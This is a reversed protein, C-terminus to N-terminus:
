VARSSLSCVRRVRGLQEDERAVEIRAVQDAVLKHGSSRRRYGASSYVLSTIWKADSRDIFLFPFCQGVNQRRVSGGGSSSSGSSTTVTTGLAKNRKLRTVYGMLIASM